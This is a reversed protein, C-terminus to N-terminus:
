PDTPDKVILDILASNLTFQITYVITVDDVAGAVTGYSSNGTSKAKTVFAIDPEVPNAAARQKNIDSTLTALADLFKNLGIVISKDAAIAPGGVLAGFDLQPSANQATPALANAPLYTALKAYSITM